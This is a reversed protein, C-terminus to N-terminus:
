DKEREWERESEREWVCVIERLVSLSLAVPTHIHLDGLMNVLFPPQRVSSAGRVQYEAEEGELEGDPQTAQFFM